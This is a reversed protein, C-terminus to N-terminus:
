SKTIQTTNHIAMSQDDLSKQQTETSVSLDGPCGGRYCAPYGMAGIAGMM